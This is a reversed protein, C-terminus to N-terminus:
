LMASGGTIIWCSLMGVSIGSVFVNGTRRHIYTCLVSLVLIQPFFVLLLSMFPGGFTPSFLLDAGPGIGAFFPVYEILCILFIGGAMCFANKWWCSIFGKFGPQHTAPQRMQAFIKSNNLVFFLTFFLVYVLFQLFREFSCPRFFPWIVRFDLLFLSHFILLLAYVFTMMLVAVIAAKGLLVWDFKDAKDKGAFGLDYYDLPSDTKKSKKWPRITTILMIVILLLYWALFGNGITMRFINEPLPLLGHGLQTMFPYTLGAILVTIIAGRWWSRRSKIKEPRDPLGQGAYKLFPICLLLEMFALMAALALLMSVFVLMEKILYVQNTPKIVSNNNTATDYWDMALAIGRSNHTVLRHNTYLLEMRRATGDSFSGFTTNWAAESAPVGLFGSRLSSSPLDQSVTNNYDRFMAFEDYKAQLLLVNNFKINTSDYANSAFLEGCQLVVARPSVDVGFSKNSYVAAVTWSAWTGMSHGGVALRTEDVFDYGTLVAYAAVGGVSSDKIRNGDADERYRTEFFSLNSFNLMIRYRTPGSISVFTGDKESDEGYNVTVKHNVYGRETLGVSTAGHGFADIALVVYGRRALEIAYASGTDKDNQYGHILLVAPAPNAATATAPKYLKGTVIGINGTFDGMDIKILNIDIKGFDTQLLNAIFMCAFILVLFVCLFILSKKARKTM